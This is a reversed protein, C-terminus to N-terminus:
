NESVVCFLVCQLLAYGYSIAFNAWTADPVYLANSYMEYLSVRTVSTGYYIYVYMYLEHVAKINIHIESLSAGVIMM